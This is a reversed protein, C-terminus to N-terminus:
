AQRRKAKRDKFIARTVIEANLELLQEQEQPQVAHADARQHEHTLLITM